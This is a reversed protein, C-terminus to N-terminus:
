IFDTLYDPELGYDQLIGEVEDLTGFLDYENELADNIEQQIERKAEKWDDGYAERLVKELDNM